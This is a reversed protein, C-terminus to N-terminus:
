TWRAEAVTPEMEYGINGEKVDTTMLWGGRIGMTLDCQMSEPEILFNKWKQHSEAPGNSM